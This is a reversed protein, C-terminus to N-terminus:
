LYLAGKLGADQQISYGQKFIILSLSLEYIAVIRIGARKLNCLFVGM